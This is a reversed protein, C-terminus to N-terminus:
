KSWFRRWEPGIIVPSKKRGFVAKVHPHELTFIGNITMTTLFNNRTTKPSGRNVPWTISRMRLHIPLNPEPIEIIHIMKAGQHYTVHCPAHATVTGPSPLTIMNLWVYSLFSLQLFSFIPVHVPCAFSLECVDSLDFPPLDLDCPWIFIICLFM